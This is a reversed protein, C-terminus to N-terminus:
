GAWVAEVFLSDESRNDLLDLDPVTGKQFQCRTIKEFGSKELVECLMQWDYMYKHASLTSGDQETFFYQNLMYHKQGKAYLALAYELDPVSIRIVGGSRLVRAAERILALADKYYLHELFHSTYVFEACNDPLPVGYRLDHHIFVGGSLIRYYDEFSYFEKSGSFGYALRLIFRPFSALLANLSGDINIWGPATSLGAGLNLKLDNGLYDFIRGRRIVGLAVNINEITTRTFAM